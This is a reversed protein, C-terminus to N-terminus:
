LKPINGFTTTSLFSLDKYKSFKVSRFIKFIFEKSNLISVKSQLAKPVFNLYQADFIIFYFACFTKFTNIRSLSYGCLILTKFLSILCGRFYIDRSLFLITLKFKHLSGVKLELTENGPTM